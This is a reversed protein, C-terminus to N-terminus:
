IVFSQQYAQLTALQTTSGGVLGTDRDIAFGAGTNNYYDLVDKIDDGYGSGSWAANSSPVRYTSASVTLSGDGESTGGENPTYKQL